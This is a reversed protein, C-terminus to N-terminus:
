TEKRASVAPTVMKCKNTHNHACAHYGHLDSDSKSHKNDYGWCRACHRSWLLYYINRSNTLELWSFSVTTVMVAVIWNQVPFFKGHCHLLLFFCFTYFNSFYLNFVIIWLHNSRSFGLSIIWSFIWSFFQHIILPTYCSSMFFDIIKLVNAIVLEFTIYFIEILIAVFDTIGLILHSLFYTLGKHVSTCLSFTTDYGHILISVITFLDMM